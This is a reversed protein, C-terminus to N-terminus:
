TKVTQGSGSQCTHPATERHSQTRNGQRPAHTSKGGEGGRSSRKASNRIHQCVWRTIKREQSMLPMQHLQDARKSQFVKKRPEETGRRYHQCQEETEKQSEEPKKPSWINFYGSALGWVKRRQKNEKKILEDWRVAKFNMWTSIIAWTLGGVQVEGGFKLSM